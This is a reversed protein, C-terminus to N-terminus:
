ENNSHNKFVRKSIVIFILEKVNCIRHLLVRTAEGDIFYDPM